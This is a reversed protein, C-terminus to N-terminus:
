ASQHQGIPITRVPHLRNTAVPPEGATAAAVARHFRHDRCRLMHGCRLVTGAHLSVARSRGAGAIGRSDLAGHYM